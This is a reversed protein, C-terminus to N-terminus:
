SRLAMRHRVSSLLVRGRALNSTQTKRVIALARPYLLGPSLMVTQSSTLLLVLDDHKLFHANENANTSVYSSPGHPGPVEMLGLTQRTRGTAKSAAAFNVRALIGSADTTAAIAERNHYGASRVM